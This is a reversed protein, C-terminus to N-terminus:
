KTFLFPFPIGKGKLYSIRIAGPHLPIQKVQRILRIKGTGAGIVPVAGIKILDIMDPRGILMQVADFGIFPGM